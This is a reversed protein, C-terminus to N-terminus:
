SRADWRERPFTWGLVEADGVRRRSRIRARAVLARPLHSLFSLAVRLRSARAGAPSEGPRAARSGLSRYSAVVFDWPANKLVMLLRNREAHFRMFGSDPGSTASHVHDVVAAPEYLVKWGALRLRWSLDVDEYYMYFAEDLLGVDDLAERRYLAAAACAGFVEERRSFRGDDPEGFGRDGASGDSLLLTGASQIVGPRGAFLLKAQVAGARPDSDAASVLAALWGPRVLTDNNLLVVHTTTAQRLALNNGAAFGLNAGAELVRVSPFHSRVHAVSGDESANDVLVTTFGGALEQGALSGLCGDLHRLGNRNLVIVTM